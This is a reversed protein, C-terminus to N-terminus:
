QVALRNRVEKVGKIGQAIQVARQAETTSAAVGNLQIVGQSAEVAIQRGSVQKDAYLAIKVKNALLNDDVTEETSRSMQDGACGAVLVALIFCIVMSLERTRRMMDERRLNEQQRLLAFQTGSCCLSERLLPSLIRLKPNNNKDGRRCATGAQLGQALIEFPATEKSQQSLLHLNWL